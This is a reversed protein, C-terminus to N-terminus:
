DPHRESWDGAARARLAVKEDDYFRREGKPSTVAYYVGEDNEIVYLVDPEISGRRDLEQFVEEHCTKSPLSWTGYHNYDGTERFFKHGNQVELGEDPVKVLKADCYCSAGCPKGKVDFLEGKVRIRGQVGRRSVFPEGSVIEIDGPAIEMRTKGDVGIPTFRPPISSLATESEPRNHNGFEGGNGAQGTNKKRTITEM